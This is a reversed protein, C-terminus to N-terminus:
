GNVREPIKIARIKQALSNVWGWLKANEETLLDRERQLQDRDDRLDRLMKTLEARLDDIEMTSYNVLDLIEDFSLAKLTAAVFKVRLQGRVEEREARNM